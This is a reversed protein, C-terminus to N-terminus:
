WVASTSGCQLLLGGHKELSGKLNGNCKPDHVFSGPSVLLSKWSGRIRAINGDNARVCSWAMGRLKMGAPSLHPYAKEDSLSMLLEADLSFTAVSGAFTSAAIASPMLNKASGTVKVPMKGYDQILGTTTAKHWRSTRSFAGNSSAGERFRMRNFVDENVNTTMISQTFGAIADDIEPTTGKFVMEALMVFLERTFQECPWRLQRLFESIWVDNFAAAELKMLLEFDSKFSAFLPAKDQGSEKFLLAFRGPYTHSYSMSSLLHSSSLNVILNFLTQCLMDDQALAEEPLYDYEHPELLMINDLKEPIHFVSFAELVVDSIGEGALWQKFQVSGALTKTTTKSKDFMTTFPLIGCDIVEAMQNGYANSIVQAVFHMTNISKNRMGKLVQNSERVSKPGLASMEKGASAVAM